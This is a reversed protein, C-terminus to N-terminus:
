GRVVQDGDITVPVEELGEPAPGSVVSGDAASFRSGHCTCVIEADDVQSVACGQHSCTPDYGRFDGETPQVIVIEKEKLIIAGGIPVDDVSVLAEGGAPPADEEAGGPAAPATPSGTESSTGGGGCAALLPAGVGVAALGCLAGRRDVGAPVPRACPATPDTTTM